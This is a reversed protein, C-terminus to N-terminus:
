YLWFGAPPRLDSERIYSTDSLRCKTSPIMQLEVKSLVLYCRIESWTGGRVVGSDTKGERDM